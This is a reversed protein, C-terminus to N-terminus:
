VRVRYRLDEYALGADKGEGEGEGKGLGKDGV